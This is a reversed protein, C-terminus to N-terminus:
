AVIERSRIFLKDLLSTKTKWGCQDLVSFVAEKIRKNSFEFNFTQGFSGDDKTGFGINKEFFYQSGGSWTMNFNTGFIGNEGTGLSTQYEKYKATHTTPDLTVVLHYSTKVGAKDFLERWRADGLNLTASITNDEVTVAFPNQPSNLALIKQIVVELPVLM